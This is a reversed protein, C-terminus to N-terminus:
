FWFVSEGSPISARETKARQDITSKSVSKLVAPDVTRIAVRQGFGHDVYTKNLLQFGMGFSLAWFVGESKSPIIILGASTENGRKFTVGTLRQATSVWKAEETTISGEVFLGSKGEIIFDHSQFTQQKLYKDQVCSALERAGSLRYLTYSQTKKEKSM